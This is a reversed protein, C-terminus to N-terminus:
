CSYSVRTFPYVFVQSPVEISILNSNQTHPELGILKPAVAPEVKMGVAEAADICLGHANDDGQTFKLQIFIKSLVLEGVVDKGIGVHYQHMMWNTKEPKEGDTASMYLVMIKKSGRHIGDVYVPKTKGIKQWRVTDLDKPNKNEYTKFSRHFFYSLSGDQKVGLLHM